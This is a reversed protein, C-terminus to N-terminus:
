SLCCIMLPIGNQEGHVTILHVNCQSLELIWSTMGRMVHSMGSRGVGSLGGDVQCRRNCLVLVAAIQIPLLPEILKVESYARSIKSYRDSLLILFRLLATHFLTCNHQIVSHYNGSKGLATFLGRIKRHCCFRRVM